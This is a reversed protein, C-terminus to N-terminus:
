SSQIFFTGILSLRVFPNSLKTAVNQMIQESFSINPSYGIYWQDAVRPRNLYPLNTVEFENFITDNPYIESKVIGRIPLLIAAFLAPLVLELILAFISRKQIVYNKWTLLGFQKFNSKLSNM